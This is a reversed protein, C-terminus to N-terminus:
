DWDAAVFKITHGKSDSLTLYHGDISYNTMTPFKEGFTKELDMAGECYMMTAGIDSIEIKGGSKMKATFFMQNCGMYAGYQNPNTKTPSFDIYAKNKSLFEKEYQDFEVMMWQRQLNENTQQATCNRIFLFSALILVISFFDKM